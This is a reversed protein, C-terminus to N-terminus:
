TSFRASATALPATGGSAKSSEQSSEAITAEKVEILPMPTQVASINRIKERLGELVAVEGGAIAM